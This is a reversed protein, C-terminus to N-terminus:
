HHSAAYDQGLFVALRAAHSFAPHAGTGGASMPTLTATPFFNKKLCQGAPKDAPTRYFVITTSSTSTADSVDTPAITYGATRLKDAAPSALTLSPDAANEVAIKIGNPSGCSTQQGSPSENPTPSSTPHSRPSSSASPSPSPGGGTSATGPFGNAIIIAGIVVAGVLVGARLGSM